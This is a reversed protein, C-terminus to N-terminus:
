IMDCFVIIALLLINDLGHQWWEQLSTSIVIKGDLDLIFQLFCHCYILIWFSVIDINSQFHQMGPFLTVSLSIVFHISLHRYQNLLCNPWFFIAVHKFWKNLSGGKYQGLLYHINCMNHIYLRDVLVFMSALFNNILCASKLYQTPKMFNLASYLPM